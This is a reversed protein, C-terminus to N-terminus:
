DSRTFISILLARINTFKISRTCHFEKINPKSLRINTKIITHVTYVTKLCNLQFNSEYDDYSYNDHVVVIITMITLM